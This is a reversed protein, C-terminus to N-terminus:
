PRETGLRSGNSVGHEYRLEERDNADDRLWACIAGCCSKLYKQQLSVLEASNEREKGWKEGM